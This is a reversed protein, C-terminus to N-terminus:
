KQFGRIRDTMYSAFDGAHDAEWQFPRGCSYDNLASRIFEHYKAPLNAIGWNGGEQKSLIVRDKVYALVRCLNLTIYVPNIQIEDEAGSVDTWISDIYFEDKVNEFVDQIAKGYLCRGRHYIITVHAALDKDTGKMKDIYDLPNTNYWELHAASFHLEFPTPYVFPKCVAKKVISMEIGKDPADKNRMVVMDMYEKKIEDSIEDNVVVLLDIDSKKENFCGLVASGHLYVGVLNEGLINRSGTTFAETVSKLRNM